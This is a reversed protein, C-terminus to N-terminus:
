LLTDRVLWTGGLLLPVTMSVTEVGLSSVSFVGSLLAGVYGLLVIPLMNMVILTGPSVDHQFNSVIFLGGLLIYPALHLTWNGLLAPNLTVNPAPILSLHVLAGLTIAVGFIQSGYESQTAGM